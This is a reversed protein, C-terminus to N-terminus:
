DAVNVILNLKLQTYLSYLRFVRTYILTTGGVGTTMTMVKIPKDEDEKKRSSHITYKKGFVLVKVDYLVPLIAIFALRIEGM